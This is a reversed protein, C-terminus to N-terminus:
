LVDSYEHPLSTRKPYITIDLPFQALNSVDSTYIEAFRALRRQFYSTQMDCRFISGFNPNFVERLTNKTNTRALKMKEIEEKCSNPNYKQSDDLREELDILKAVNERFTDSNITSIEKALEPVICATRWGANLIADALDAYLHDGFFLIEGM